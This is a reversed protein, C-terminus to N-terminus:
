DACITGSTKGNEVYNLCHGVTVTHDFCIGEKEVGPRTQEPTYCKSECDSSSRCPKGADAPKRDCYEKQIMGFKAWTGGASECAERTKPEDALATLPLLAFLFSIFCSRFLNM